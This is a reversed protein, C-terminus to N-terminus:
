KPCVLTHLTVRPEHSVRCLGGQYKVLCWGEPYEKQEPSTILITISKQDVILLNTNGTVKDFHM